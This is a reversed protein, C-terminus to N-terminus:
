VKSDRYTEISQPNYASWKNYALQIITFLLHVIDLCLLTQENISKVRTSILTVNHDETLATPATSAGHFLLLVKLADRRAAM